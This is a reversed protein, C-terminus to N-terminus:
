RRYIRLDGSVSNMSYTRNGGELYVATGNKANLSTKLDFDSRLDGSVRTYQLAFGDNDPLWLKTDGSVASLQADTLEM